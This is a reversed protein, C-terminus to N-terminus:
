IGNAQASSVGAIKVAYDPGTVYENQYYSAEIGDVKTRTNYPHREVVMRGPLEPAAWNFAYMWSPEDRSPATPRYYLVIADDAFASTLSLSTPNTAENQTSIQAESVLYRDLEFAQAIQQRTIYGGGNNVGKVFNRMHYNRALLLHAKWGILMSNPLVGIRAKMQEKAANIAGIPDGVNANNGAWSSNPVFTTGVSTSANALVLVRREMGLGLKGVVYRTAGADGLEYAFAADMNARDEIPVDYGLAHNNVQYGASSVSRTVKKAEAGRARQTDELSYFELRNFVPYIGSEKPVSVIPAIQDAIFAQPMYNIAVNSLLTDIHLGRGTSNGM